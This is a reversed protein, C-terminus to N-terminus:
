DTGSTHHRWSLLEAFLFHQLCLFYQIPSPVLSLFADIARWFATVQFVIYKIKSLRQIKFLHKQQQPLAAAAASSSVQNRELQMELHSCGWGCSWCHTSSPNWAACKLSIHAGPFIWVYKVVPLCINVQLEFQAPIRQSTKTRKNLNSMRSKVLIM